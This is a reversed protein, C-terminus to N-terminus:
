FNFDIDMLQRLLNRGHASIVWFHPTGGFYLFETVDKLCFLRKLSRAFRGWGLSFSNTRPHIPGLLLSVPTPFRREPLRSVSSPERRRRGLVRTRRRRRRRRRRSTNCSFGASLFKFMSPEPNEEWGGYLNKPSKFSGFANGM